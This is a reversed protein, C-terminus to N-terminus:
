RNNRMGNEIFDHKQQKQLLIVPLNHIYYLWVFAFAIGSFYDCIYFLDSKFIM